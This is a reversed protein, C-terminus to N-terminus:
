KKPPPPPPTPKPLRDPRRRLGDDGYLDMWGRCIEALVRGTYTADDHVADPIGGIRNHRMAIAKLIDRHDHYDLIAHLKVGGTPLEEFSENISNSSDNM